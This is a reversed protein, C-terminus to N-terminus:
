WKIELVRKKISTNLFLPYQYERYDLNVKCGILQKGMEETFKEHNFMPRHEEEFSEVRRVWISHGAEAAEKLSPIIDNALLQVGEYFTKDRIAQLEEALSM